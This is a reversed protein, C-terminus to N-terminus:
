KSSGSFLRKRHDEAAQCAACLPYGSAARTPPYDQDDHPLECVRCFGRYPGVPLLSAAKNRAAQEATYRHMEELESARDDETM